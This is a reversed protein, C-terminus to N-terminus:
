EASPLLITFTTGIDVKSTFEISGKFATVSNKVMALGLGTGSNKTTFNPTFIKSYFEPPIGSGNDSIKIEISPSIRKASIKIKGVRDEPISQEANKILNTFVRICQEKDIMVFLGFDIDSEIISKSSEKFLNIENELVEILDIRELKIQPFKAFSSFETAINSLADIQQILMESVKNVKESVDKPNSKVVRQLQQINLKMPTLPNKIEHAVQKSMEIWANEKESQALLESNKKLKILMSNYETVLNGIEDNSKWSIPKINDELKTNSIEQKIIRLPKTLLNSIFLAVLTTILFLVTYINLLNVLYVSLEKELDKQRSFYPLNLYGLLKENNNYFPIYTSLYNLEGITERHSYNALMNKSFGAYAIPNMFRSVLGQDYILPQSTAFLQGKKDFLSIDSGFLKSLKKLIFTTYESYNTKLDKQEGFNQELENLVSKSKLLLENKNKLESQSTVVFVTGIVVGTLSIVVIFVLIFQIRSNLSNFGLDKRTIINNLWIALLAILSFFIFFYSNLTFLKWFGSKDETILIESNRTKPYIYHNFDKDNKFVYNYNNFLPYQFNGFSVQLKNKEYVAYSINKFEVKSELSKDLLLDPFVGLSNSIKPDLQLYLNYISDQSNNYDNIEIKGVYRAPINKKNIFYLNDSITKFTGEKMQDEFYDVNLYKIENLNFIPRANKFLSIVVNYREFYGSFNVQKIKQEIKSSSLPLLSLLNKLNIDNQVSSSIKVFENEAIIDQRDTLTQALTDYNAKKNIQEYKDFFYSTSFTILLTILGINIFNNKSNFKKLVYCVVILPTFWLYEEDVIKLVFLVIIIVSLVLIYFISVKFNELIQIIIKEIFLYLALVMFGISSLGILNYYSVDFLQKVDFTISSNNIISYILNPICVSFYVLLALSILFIFIKFILHLHTLVIKRKYLNISGIFFLFSNIFVDGLRSFYFSSANAFVGVSYLKSTYFYDPWKYYIMLSRILFFIAILCFTQFFVNKIFLNFFVNLFIGFFVFALLGFLISLINLHKLKYLGDKRQIEFLPNGVKSTVTHKLFMAPVIIKTNEPLKLWTSFENKLYKNEFDYETKISILAISSYNNKFNNKLRIYEYWGNRIKIIQANYENTYANLDVSPENDSWFRLSDNEYVYISIGEEKYLNFINGRYWSFLKKPSTTELYKNIENLKEYAIDEKEHLNTQAIAALEQTTFNNKQSIIYAIIFLVM